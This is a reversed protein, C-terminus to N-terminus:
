LGARTTRPLALFSGGCAFLVDVGCPFLAHTRQWQAWFDASLGAPEVHMEGDIGPGSVRVCCGGLLRPVQVILTASRDPYRADGADFAALDPMSRPDTILAFRAQGPDGVLPCGCHFRLYDALADTRHQLWLPTEFDVLTLCLAATTPDLPAPAPRPGSVEVVRGPHAVAELVARFARQRDLVPDAFEAFGPQM